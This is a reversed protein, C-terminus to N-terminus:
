TGQTEGGVQKRRAALERRARRVRLIARVVVETIISAAIFACLFLIIQLVIVM